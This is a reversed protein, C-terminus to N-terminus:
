SEHKQRLYNDVGEILSAGNFDTFADSLGYTTGKRTGEMKIVGDEELKGLLYKIQNRNMSDKLAAELKGISVREKDLAILLQSLETVIYRSGIRQSHDALRHYEDALSYRNTNGSSRTILKKQELSKLVQEPLDVFLGKKIKYLTVVEQVSLNLKGSFGDIYPALLMHFAGDEIDGLIRLIVQFMDSDTYSPEPKGDALTIAFIKDVGQGSREVLGTKELVEAMTRSRPTSSVTLINDLTVGKPFGGPNYIVIEKPFQKIVVESTISYDRHTVANLIAERIVEENFSNTAYIYAKNRIQVSGNKDNILQWLKDIGIFLPDAITERFDYAIQNNAYRFEWITKAQPLYKDIAGKKGLLILAAYNLKGDVLLKLDSLVQEDALLAFQPNSQKRAYSKKMNAVAIGDLDSITLGECIKASYDPEQESLIKFLEEDSMNTLSEGVRMLAVGEFKLTKGVPRKPISFVVIRKDGEIIEEISVRVLLRKYIEEELDGLQGKAFDSGTVAHPHKDHMGLVLRGGGENAFAVVYGLVCKRREKQDTHESGAFSFNKEAAKFEIKDESERLQALESSTM